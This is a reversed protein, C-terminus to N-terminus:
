LSRKFKFDSKLRCSLKISCVCFLKVVHVKLISPSRWIQGILSIGILREWREFKKERNFIFSGQGYKWRDDENGTNFM